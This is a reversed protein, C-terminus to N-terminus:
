LNLEFPPLHRTGFEFKKIMNRPGKTDFVDSWRIGMVVIVISKGLVNREGTYSKAVPKM